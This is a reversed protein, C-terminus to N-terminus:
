PETFIGLLKIAEPAAPVWESWAQLAEHALVGQEVKPPARFLFPVRHSLAEDKLINWKSLGGMVPSGLAFVVRCIGAARICFSCMACPEVTSYLTCHALAADGLKRRAEAIALVEAHRSEDRDRETRNTAEASITGDRAILSAFPREGANAGRKSLEICRAMMARDITALEMTDRFLTMENLQGFYDAL